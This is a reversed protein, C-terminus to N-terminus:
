DELLTLRSLLSSAVSRQIEKVFGPLLTRSSVLQNHREDLTLYTMRIEWTGDEEKSHGQGSWGQKGGKHIM